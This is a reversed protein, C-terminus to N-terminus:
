RVVLRILHGHSSFEGDDDLMGTVCDYTRSNVTRVNFANEAIVSLLRVADRGVHSSDPHAHGLEIVYVGDAQLREDLLTWPSGDQACARELHPLLHADPDETVWGPRRMAELLREVDVVMASADAIGNYRRDTDWRPRLSTM